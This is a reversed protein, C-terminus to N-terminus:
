LKKLDKLKMIVRPTSMQEIKYLAYINLIKQCQNRTKLGGKNIYSLVSYWTCVIYIQYVSM